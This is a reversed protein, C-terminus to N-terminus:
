SIIVTEKDQKKAFKITSMSGNSEVDEPIFAVVIDSREAIQKNRSFYNSVHYPKGYYSEPLVCYLSRNEHAPLFEVYKVCFELAYKKAYKDAGNRCGGSVIELEDGFKEKLEYIFEKIKRKNEYQRSGVIGIKM